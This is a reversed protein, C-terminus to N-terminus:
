KMDIIKDNNYLIDYFQSLLTNYLMKEKQRVM